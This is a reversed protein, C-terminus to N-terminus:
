PNDSFFFANKIKISKEKEEYLDLDAPVKTGATVLIAFFATIVGIGWVFILVFSIIFLFCGLKSDKRYKILEPQSFYAAIEESDLKIRNIFLSKIHKNRRYLDGSLLYRYYPEFSDNQSLGSQKQNAHWAEHCDFCLYDLDSINEKGFFSSKIYYNHHLQVRQKSGCRICEIEWSNLNYIASIKNKKDNWSNSNIYSDYATRDPANNM